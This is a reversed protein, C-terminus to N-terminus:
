QVPKRGERHQNRGRCFFQFEEERAKGAAALLMGLFLDNRASVEAALVRDYLRQGAAAVPSSSHFGSRVSLSRSSSFTV